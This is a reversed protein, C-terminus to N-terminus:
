ECSPEGGTGAEPPRGSEAKPPAPKHDAAWGEQLAIRYIDNLDVNRVWELCESCLDFHGYPADIEFCERKPDHPPSQIRKGCIDCQIIIM